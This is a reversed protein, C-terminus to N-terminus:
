YLSRQLKGFSFLRLDAGFIVFFGFNNRNKDNKHLKQSIKTLSRPNSHQFREVLCLNTTWYDGIFFYISNEISLAKLNVGIKLTVSKKLKIAITILSEVFKTSYFTSFM